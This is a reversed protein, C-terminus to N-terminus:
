TARPPPFPAVEPPPQLRFSNMVARWPADLHAVDAPFASLTCILVTPGRDIFVQRQLMEEGQNRWTFELWGAVGGAFDFRDRQKLQFGPLAERCQAEQRALYEDFGQAGRSPDRSIVFSADRGGGESPIKFVNLSQDRWGGPVAFDAENIRYPEM